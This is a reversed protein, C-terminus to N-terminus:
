SDLFPRRRMDHSRQTMKLHLQKCRDEFIHAMDGKTISFQVSPFLDIVFMRFAGLRNGESVFMDVAGRPEDRMSPLCQIEFIGVLDVFCRGFPQSIRRCQSTNTVDGDATGYCVKM